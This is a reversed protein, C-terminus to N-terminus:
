SKGRLWGAFWRARGHVFIVVCGVTYFLGILHFIAAAIQM